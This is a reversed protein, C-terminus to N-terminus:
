GEQQALAPPVQTKAIRRALTYTHRLQEVLTAMLRIRQTYQPDDVPLRRAHREFLQDAFAQIEANLLLAEQAARQDTQRVARVFLEVSRRAVEDLKGKDKLELANRLAGMMQLSILGAREIERRVNELAISPTELAAEDLYKPAIIVGKAPAREPILKEALRAFWVTFGIFLLTDIVNFLTNANAIQRPVEAALKATGM